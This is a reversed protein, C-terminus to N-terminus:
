RGAFPPPGLAVMGGHQLASAMVRDFDVPGTTESDDLPESAGFFFGQCSGPTQLCLMRARPSTVLFAHPVGRPIMAIGGPGVTLEEGDLHVVIEGELM